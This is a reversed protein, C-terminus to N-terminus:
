RIDDRARSWVAALLAGSLNHWISFVTAPLAAAASIYKVALAVALGSNQMGVEIAIPRATRQDHGIARSIGCGVALGTLNHLTVATAVAVRIGAINDRNLAVIIAIIVVIAAISVVPFANRLSHLHAGAVRNILIGAIIPSLVIKFITWLMSAAPVLVSQGVFVSTLVPTLFVALVTSVATLTISLAVDGRGLYCIVNSATGGALAVVSWCWGPM